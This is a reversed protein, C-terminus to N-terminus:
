VNKKNLKERTDELASDTGFVYLIDGQRLCTEGHPIFLGTNGRAMILIADKHFAIEKVKLRDINPNTIPIEEVSFNEFTEILAHYTTPRVILTEITTAMVRRVDITQVDLRKLEQEIRISNAMSIIKEHDLDRRLMECIKINTEQSGTDVFVFGSNTLNLKKYTEPDLGDMAYVMLGKSLIESYRKRDAEIIVSPKGHISLRRSLLV